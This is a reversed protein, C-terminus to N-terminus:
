EAPPRARARWRSAARIAPAAPTGRRRSRGGNVSREPGSALLGSPPERPADRAFLRERLRLFPQEVWRHSATAALVVLPFAVAFSILPGQGLAHRVTNLVLMHLLYIGYSVNGVHRAVPNDVLRAAASPALVCSVVLYTISLAFFDQPLGAIWRPLLVFVIALPLSWRRGAVRHVCAFSTRNELLIAAVVGFFIPTDVSALIRYGLGDHLAGASRLWGAVDSALLFALPVLIVFRRRVRRLLVPWILYFQEQVALSWAFYFIVREGPNRQVFWNTTFTLYSPLSQWFAAGASTGRELSAVLLVYVGLVAFYLPFIRLARRIWFGALAITGNREQERLLLRTILFGSVVFFTTVGVGRGFYGTTDNITHHWVVAAAAFARLGDLAGFRRAARYASFPTQDEAM